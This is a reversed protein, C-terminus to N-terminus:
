WELLQQFRALYDILKAIKDASFATYILKREQVVSPELARIQNHAKETPVILYRRRDKPDNKRLVLGKEEFGDIMRSM